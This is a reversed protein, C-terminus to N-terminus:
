YKVLLLCSVFHFAFRFGFRVLFLFLAPILPEKYCELTFLEHKSVVLLTHRVRRLDIHHHANNFYTMEGFGSCRDAVLRCLALSIGIQGLM